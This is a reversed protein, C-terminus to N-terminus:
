VRLCTLDMSTPLGARPTADGRNRPLRDPRRLLAHAPLSSSCCATSRASTTSRQTVRERNDYGEIWIALNRQLQQASILGERDDDLGLELSQNAEFSRRSSPPSAARWWHTNGAAAGPPCAASARSTPKSAWRQRAHTLALKRDAMLTCADVLCSHSFDHGQHRQCAHCQPAPRLLGQLPWATQGGALEEAEIGVTHLWEQIQRFAVHQCQGQKLVETVSEEDVTWPEISINKHDERKVSAVLRRQHKNFFEMIQKGDAVVV